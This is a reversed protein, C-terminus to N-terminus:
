GVIRYLRMGGDALVVEFGPTDDTVSLMGEWETEDFKGAHITEDLYLLYKAGSDAVAQKVAQDTAVQNLSTKFLSYESSPSDYFTRCQTNIDDTAYLWVSGDSPINVMLADGVCSKVQEIFNRESQDFAVINSWKYDAEITASVHALGSKLGFVGLAVNSLAGAAFLLAFSCLGAKRVTLSFRERMLSIAWGLAISAIPIAALVAMGGIRNVATYWFGCLLQRVPDAISACVFYLFCSILYAVLVWLYSRKRLIIFMAGVLVLVALVPQPAFATSGFSLLLINVLGQAKTACLDHEFQVVPQMFPLSYAIYWIAGISVCAVLCALLRKMLSNSGGHAAKKWVFRVLLPACIVGATFLANTQSVALCIGATALLVVLGPRFSKESADFICLMVYLFSPVLAFSLLNADYQGIILFNWPFCAFLNCVLGGALVNMRNGGFLRSLFLWSALPFIAACIVYNMANYAVTVPVSLAGSALATVVHWAAPYFGGEGNAIVDPYVSASLISYHGSQRMAQACQLHFTSDTQVSFSTAGDINLLFVATTTFLGMLVYLVFGAWVGRTERALPKRLCFFSLAGVVLALLPLVFWPVSWPQVIVGLLVLVVLTIVPAFALSRSASRFFARGLLYGPLYLLILIFAVAAIFSAWM